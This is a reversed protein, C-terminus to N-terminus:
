DTQQKKNQQSVIIDGNPYVYCISMKDLTPIEKQESFLDIKNILSKVAKIHNNSLM